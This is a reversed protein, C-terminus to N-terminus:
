DELTRLFGITKLTPNGTHAFPLPLKPLLLPSHWKLCPKQSSAAEHWRPLKSYVRPSKRGFNLLDPYIRFSQIRAERFIRSFIRCGPFEAWPFKELIAATVFGPCTKSWKARWVGASCEERLHQFKRETEMLSLVEWKCFGKRRWLNRERRKGKKESYYHHKWLRIFIRIIKSNHLKFKHIEPLFTLPFPLIFPTQVISVERQWSWIPKCVGCM